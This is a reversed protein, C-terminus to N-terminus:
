NTLNPIRVKKATKDHPVVDEYFDTDQFLTVNFTVGYKFHVEVEEPNKLTFLSISSMEFITKIRAKRFFVKLVRTFTRLTDGITNTIIKTLYLM